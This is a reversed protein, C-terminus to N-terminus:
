DNGSVTVLQQIGDNDYNTHDSENIEHEIIRQRHDESDIQNPYQSESDDNINTINSNEQSSGLGNLESYPHTIADIFCVKSSEVFKAEQQAFLEKAIDIEQSPIFCYGTHYSSIYYEDINAVELPQSISAVVGFVEFGVPLQGIRILKWYDNEINLLTGHPFKKLLRTEMVLSIDFEKKTFNFFIENDEYEETEYFMIDILTPIILFFTDMNYLGTICYEIADPILLPLTIQRQRNENTTPQRKLQRNPNQDFKKLNYHNKGNLKAFVIENEPDLSEDYIKPIHTSLCEIVAEYDDEQILIYDCQYMSIAMISIKWDALPLILYKAIKSIGRQLDEGSLYIPIWDSQSLTMDTENLYPRLEDFGYNDVVISFDDNTETFSFFSCKTKNTFAIKVIAFMLKHVSSKKVSIIKLRYNLIRLEINPEM